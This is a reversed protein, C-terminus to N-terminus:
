VLENLIENYLVAIAELLSRFFCINLNNLMKSGVCLFRSNEFVGCNKVKSVLTMYIEVNKYDLQYVM